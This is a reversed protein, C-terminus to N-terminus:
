TPVEAVNGIEFKVMGDAFLTRTRSVQPLPILLTLTDSYHLPPDQGARAMEPTVEPGSNLYRPNTAM